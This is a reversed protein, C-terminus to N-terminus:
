IHKCLFIGNKLRHLKLCNTNEAIFKPSAESFGLKRALSIAAINAGETQVVITEVGKEKAARIVELSLRQAIGQRRYRPHVHYGINAISKKHQLLFVNAQGVSRNDLIAVKTAVHLPSKEDYLVRQVNTLSWAPYIELFLRSIEEGMTDRSYDVIEM